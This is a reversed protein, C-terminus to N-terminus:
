QQEKWAHWTAWAADCRTQATATACLEWLLFRYDSTGVPPTERDWVLSLILKNLYDHMLGLEALRQEVLAAHNLDAIPNFDKYQMIYQDNNDSWYWSAPGEHKIWGLIIAMQENTAHM